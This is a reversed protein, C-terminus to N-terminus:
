FRFVVAGSARGFDLKAGGLSFGILDLDQFSHFYRIDGRVGFHDSFFIFLGGGLNWSFNNNDSDLLDSVSLEVHSKLLGFGILGYPQVPGFRPALMFNGMVTLLNSSTNPADGFFDQAYAFELEAGFIPGLAGVSVGWNLNKDECDTIEPCGADGGFNYGIL